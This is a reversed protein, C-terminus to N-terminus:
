NNDDNDGYDESKDKLDVVLIEKDNVAEMAEVSDASIPTDERDEGDDDDDSENDDAGQAPCEFHVCHFVENASNYTGVIRIFVIPRRAFRLVQWSRCREKRKDAVMAWNQQDVSAEVYYSYARKDTDWLLLRMSDIMFPQSLQVVIAGSGLQHCTYGTDWDYNKSDGNILANRTRSVGEIVLASNRISAVNYSPVLLGRDVEFKKNTFMCEFAVVHFVRNLTNHTGVLRIYKAVRAPFYLYQWSRCLYLTHDIVRVWDKLDMSIEIYYSYARMDKDWLLMRIHNVICQMGLQILIGQGSSEDIHHRTFGKEMDYNHNEGDLLATRNEGNLVQSNFRSCAVNQEPLLCGRYQLDTDRSENKAQIADLIDNPDVLCSNRVISLLDNVSILSLRICSVIDKLVDASTTNRQTWESVARFIDIEQACFSDRSIMEKLTPASLSYFADSRIVDLAQRDIFARCVDALPKLLFLNATDYIVCVNRISLTDKLYECISQELEQFGYEHSLGFIELIMEEKFSKLQIHGSYLYKLLYKFAQVSSVKLRIEKEQSERMGGYLLARFYDSRAALLVRHAPLRQEDVLLTIDSFTDALYLASLHDSLISIHNVEGMSPGDGGSSGCGIAVSQSSKPHSDSM